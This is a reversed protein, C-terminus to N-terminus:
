PGAAPPECRTWFTSGGLFPLGLIFGRVELTKPAKLRLLASYTRGDEPNYIKGGKYLGDGRFAFGRLIALGVLPQSRLRKDPNHVDQPMAAKKEAVDKLWVIRGVYRGDEVSFRFIADGSKELWCGLLEGGPQSPLPPAQGVAALAVLLCALGVIRVSVPRVWGVARVGQTKSDSM